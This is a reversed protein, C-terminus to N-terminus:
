EVVRQQIAKGDMQDKGLATHMKDSKFKSMQGNKLELNKTGLYFGKADEKEDILPSRTKSSCKPPNQVEGHAKGLRLGSETERM